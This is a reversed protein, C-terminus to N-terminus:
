PVPIAKKAKRMRFVRDPTFAKNADARRAVEWVDLHTEKSVSEMWAMVEKRARFRSRMKDGPGQRWKTGLTSELVLISPHQETSILWERAIHAFSHMQQSMPEALSSGSGLDPASAPTASPPHPTSNMPLVASPALPESSSSVPERVACPAWTASSSSPGPVAPVPRAHSAVQNDPYRREVVSSQALNDMLGVPMQDVRLIIVGPERTAQQALQAQITNLSRDISTLRNELIALRRESAHRETQFRIDMISGLAAIDASLRAPDYNNAEERPQGDRGAGMARDGNQIGVEAEHTGSGDATTEEIGNARM